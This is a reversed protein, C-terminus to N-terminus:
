PLLPVAAAWRCDAAGPHTGCRAPDAKPAAESAGAEAHRRASPDPM